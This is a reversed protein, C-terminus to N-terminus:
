ARGANRAAKRALRKAAKDIESGLDTAITDLAGDKNEDWAPRLWPEAAQHANGFETQVGAPDATGVHIEADSKGEKKVMQAQRRTLKGGTYIRSQLGGTLTPANAEAAAEIPAAAKRLVRRLVAKATAKPLNALAAETERLGTIRRLSRM